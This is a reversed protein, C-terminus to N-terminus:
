DFYNEEDFSQQGMYARGDYSKDIDDLEDIAKKYRHMNIAEYVDYPYRDEFDYEYPTKNM